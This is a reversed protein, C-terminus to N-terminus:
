CNGCLADFFDHLFYCHGFKGSVAVKDSTAHMTRTKDSDKFSMFNIRISSKIKWEGQTKHDNIIDRLYPRIMNSIRYHILKTEIEMVKM